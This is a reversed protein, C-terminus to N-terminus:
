TSKSSNFDEVEQIKWNNSTYNHNIQESKYVKKFSLKTHFPPPDPDPDKLCFLESRTPHPDPDENKSLYSLILIFINEM